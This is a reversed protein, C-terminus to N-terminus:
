AQGWAVVGAVDLSSLVGLPIGSGPAVVMLHTIEHEAMMQAARELTEEPAVTRLETAAISGATAEDLRGQLARLLDIDSVIGWGAEDGRSRALDTVVVSHIHQLAMM